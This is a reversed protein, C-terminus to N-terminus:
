SLQARNRGTHKVREREGRTGDVRCALLTPSTLCANIVDIPPEGHETADPEQQTGNSCCHNHPHEHLM